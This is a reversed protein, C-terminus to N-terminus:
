KFISDVLQEVIGDWNFKAAAHKAGAISANRRWSEDDMVRFMLQILHDLSPELHMGTIPNLTNRKLQSDIFLAFEEDLFDDTSGGKTCIVPTGCAIAELPPLNFGEARYPSIYADAAQYFKAMEEVSITDGFYAIKENVLNQQNLPLTSFQQALLNKSPYLADGGKLLLRVDPRKEAVVAFARLLLDIGKNGTMASANAFTFNSSTLKFKERTTKRAAESPVFVETAVGHPVIIIQNDRLGLRLFGERSWRSPTVVFLEDSKSLANIDFGIALMSQDVVQYESTGFVVTRGKALPLLNYPFAIRYTVDSVENAAVIPISALRKEDEINFLGKTRRWDSRFLPVDRVSLSIDKRKLLSLLQWQNVMAYSHPIFRWGEVCLSKV